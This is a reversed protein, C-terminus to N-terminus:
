HGTKREAMHRLYALVADLDADSLAQADFGQMKAQPWRRLSQPDRIFARLLDARLYETPNHPLNLDPGLKADGEGNLTHCAFCTRQFVVFGRQVLSDAALARDPVIAPFREAVDSLRHIAALQYPWQEPNVQAAQPQTWVIYFPGASDRHKSLAPWPKAPDEIALWAESGHRNLILAAPIEAAFGDGAVFQLHDSADLGKLLAALPVARYQMTRHFAVDDAVSITRVDRRQLLMETRYTIVGHGLDVTLEAAHAFIPLGLLSLCCRLLLKM